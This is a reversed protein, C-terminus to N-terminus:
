ASAEKVPSCIADVEELTALQILDKHNWYVMPYNRGRRKFSDQHHKHKMLYHLSRCFLGTPCETPSGNNLDDQSPDKCRHLFLIWVEIQTRKQVEIYDLYHRLDIGTQWDKADKWRWTFRSKHKAEIWRMELLARKVRTALMDPAILEGQETLLRPGKGTPIEIEYAPLLNFQQARILWLAIQSEAIRGFAYCDNFTEHQRDMM